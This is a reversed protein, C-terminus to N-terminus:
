NIASWCSGITTKEEISPLGLILNIIAPIFFLIITAIIINKIRKKQTEEQEPNMTLKVFTIVLAIITLIPGVLQIISLSRKVVALINYFMLSGCFSKVDLINIM